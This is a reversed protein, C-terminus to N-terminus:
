APLHVDALRAMTRQFVTQARGGSLGVAGLYTQVARDLGLKRDLLAVFGIANEVHTVIVHEETRALALMIIRELEDSRRQRRRVDRVMRQPQRWLRWGDGDDGAAVDIEADDTAHLPVAEGSGAAASAPPDEDLRALVRTRITIAMSAPLDMETLYRPLSDELPEYGALHQVFSAAEDVHTEALAEWAMATAVEVKRRLGEGLFRPPVRRPAPM